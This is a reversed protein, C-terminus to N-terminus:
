NKDKENKNEGTYQLIMELLYDAFDEAEDESIFSGFVRDKGYERVVLVPKKRNQREEIVIQFTHAGFVKTRM